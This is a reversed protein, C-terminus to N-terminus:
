LSGPPNMQSGHVTLQCIGSINSNLRAMSSVAIDASNPLAGILDAIVLNDTRRLVRLAYPAFSEFATTNAVLRRETFDRMQHAEGWSFQGSEGHYLSEVPRFSGIPTFVESQIVKSCSFQEAFGILDGTAPGGPTIARIAVVAARTIPM